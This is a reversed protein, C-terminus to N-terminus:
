AHDRPSAVLFSDLSRMGAAPRAAGKGLKAPRKGGSKKGKGPRKGADSRRPLQPAQSSPAGRRGVGRLTGGSPVGDQSDLGCLDVVELVAAEEGAGARVVAAVAGLEASDRGSLMPDGAGAATGDWSRLKIQGKTATPPSEFPASRPGPAPGAEEEDGAGDTADGAERNERKAVAAGGLSLGQRQATGEAQTEPGGRAADETRFWTDGRGEVDRVPPGEGAGDVAEARGADGRLEGGSGCGRAGFDQAANSPDAARVKSAAPQVAFLAMASPQKARREPSGRREPHEPAAGGQPPGPEAERVQDRRHLFGEMSAPLGLVAKRPSTRRAARPSAAAEEELRERQRKLAGAIGEQGPPREAPSRPSRGAWSLGRWPQDGSQGGLVNRPRIEGPRHARAGKAAAPAPPPSSPFPQLTQPHLRGRALPEALDPPVPRGIVEELPCGLAVLAEEGPPPPTLHLVCRQAPDYVWHHLFAAEARRFAQLYSAPVEGGMKGRKGAQKRQLMHIAAPGDRHKRVLELAKHIGIGPVSALYDCGAMICMHRRQLQSLNKLNLRPNGGGEISAEDLLLCNGSRDLKYVCRDVGFPVMDSDETVVASAHGQLIMYAMQADAEYTATICDFGEKRLATAFAAAM